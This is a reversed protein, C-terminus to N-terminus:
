VLVKLARGAGPVRVPGDPSDVSLDIRKARATQYLDAAVEAVLASPEITETSLTTPAEGSEYRALTLLQETLRPAEADTRSL